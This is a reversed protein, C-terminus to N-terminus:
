GQGVAEVATGLCYGLMERGEKEKTMLTSKGWTNPFLAQQAGDKDIVQRIYGQQYLLGVGVVPVGLDSATKLQDGALL